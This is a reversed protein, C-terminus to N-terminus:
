ETVVEFGLKEVFNIEDDNINFGGASFQRRVSNDFKAGITNAPM